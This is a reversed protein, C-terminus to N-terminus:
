MNWLCSTGHKMMSMVPYRRSSGPYFTRDGSGDGATQESKANSAAWQAIKVTESGSDSESFPGRHIGIRMSIPTDPAEIAMREPIKAHVDCASAAADGADNFVVMLEDGLEAKVEGHHAECVDRVTNLAAAVLRQAEDDGLKEYMRTSGVVDAFMVVSDNPNVGM